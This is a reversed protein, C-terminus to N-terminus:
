SGNIIYPRRFHDVQFFKCDLLKVNNTRLVKKQVSGTICNVIIAASIVFILCTELGTNEVNGYSVHKNTKVSLKDSFM